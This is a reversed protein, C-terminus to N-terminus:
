LAFLAAGGLIGAGIMNVGLTPAAAKSSSTHRASSSGTAKSAGAPQTGTPTHTSSKTEVATNTTTTTALAPIAFAAALLFNLKMNFSRPSTYIHSISDTYQSPHTDKRAFCTLSPSEKICIGGKGNLLTLRRGGRRM